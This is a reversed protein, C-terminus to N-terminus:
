ERPPGARRETGGLIRRLNSRHRFVVLMATLAAALGVPDPGRWALAVAALAVGGAVSGISVYRTAGATGTLRMEILKERYLRHLIEETLACPLRLKGAVAAATADPLNAVYRLSLDRLLAESVGTEELDEPIPPGLREIEAGTLFGLHTM